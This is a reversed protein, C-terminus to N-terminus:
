RKSTGVRIPLDGLLLEIDQLASRHEGLWRGYAAWAAEIKHEKRERALQEKIARTNTHTKAALLEEAWESPHNSRWRPNRWLRDWEPKRLQCSWAGLTLCGARDVRARLAFSLGRGTSKVQELERKLLEDEELLQCDRAQGALLREGWRRHSAKLGPGLTILVEAFPISRAKKALRKRSKPTLAMTLTLGELLRLAEALPVGEARHTDVFRALVDYLFSNERIMPPKRLEQVPRSELLAALQGLTLARTTGPPLGPLGGAPFYSGSPLGRIYLRRRAISHIAPPELGIVWERATLDFPDVIEAFPKMPSM